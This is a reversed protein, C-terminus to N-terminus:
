GGIFVNDSGTSISSGCGTLDGIRTASCGNIFVSSSGTSQIINHFPALCGVCGHSAYSDGVRVAYCGNIFVNSSGTIANTPLYHCGHGSQIDGVRVAAPM